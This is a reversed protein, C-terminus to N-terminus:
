KIVCVIKDMGCTGMCVAGQIEKAKAILKNNMCENRGASASFLPSLNIGLFFFFLIFLYFLYIFAPNSGKKKKKKKPGRIWEFLQRRWAEQTLTSQTQERRM